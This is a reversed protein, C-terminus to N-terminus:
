MEVISLRLDVYSLRLDVYEQRRQLFEHRQLPVNPIPTFRCEGSSVADMISGALKRAEFCSSHHVM